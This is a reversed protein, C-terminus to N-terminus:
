AALLKGATASSGDTIGTGSGGGGTAASGTMGCGAQQSSTDGAKPASPAVLVNAGAHRQFSAFLPELVLPALLRALQPVEEQEALALWLHEQVVEVELLRHFHPEEESLTSSLHNSVVM